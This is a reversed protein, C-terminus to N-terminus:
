PTNLEAHVRIDGATVQVTRTWEKGGSTIKVRHEGTALTIDSPTNGFFKGDVYIEGGSPSSTIHVKAEGTNVLPSSGLYELKIRKGGSSDELEAHTASRLRLTYRNGVALAPCKPWILGHSCSLLYLAQEGRLIVYDVRQYVTHTTETPPQFTTRCSTDTDATGSVTGSVSGFDDFGHFRGFYSITGSCDTYAHGPETRTRSHPVYKSATAVVEVPVENKNAQDQATTRVQVLLLLSVMLAPRLM